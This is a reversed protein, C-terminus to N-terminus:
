KKVEDSEEEGLVDVNKATPADNKQLELQKFFEKHMWHDKGVPRLQQTWEKYNPPLFVQGSIVLVVAPEELRGQDDSTQVVYMEAPTIALVANRKSTYKPGESRESATNMVGVHRKQPAQYNPLAM